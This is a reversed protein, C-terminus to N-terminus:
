RFWAERKRWYIHNPVLWIASALTGVLFGGIQSAFPDDKILSDLLDGFFILCVLYIAVWNAQFAWHRRKSVGVAVCVLYIAISILTIGTLSLVESDYFIKTNPGLDYYNM